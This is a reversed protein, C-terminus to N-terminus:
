GSVSDALAARLEAVGTPRAARDRELAAMVARAVSPTLDPRRAALPVIAGRALAKLLEGLTRAPLPLEGALARYTLVGAAWVDAREDIEREGFVQEPAMYRPTGLLEGTRTINSAAIASDALLKALGFDLVMVRAPENACNSPAGVLVNTPKLDRHVVGHRHAHAVADFVPVLLAAARALSLPGERALIAELSEGYLRPMVLAPGLAGADVVDLVPVISPHRLNMAIRAERRQRRADGLGARRLIKIAFTEGPARSPDSAVHGDQVAEWVVGTGGSGIPRCLVYSGLRDGPSLADVDARGPLTGSAPPPEEGRATVASRTKTITTGPTMTAATTTRATTTVPAHRVLASLTARCAECDALHAHAASANTPLPRMTDADADADDATAHSVLGGELVRLLDDESM